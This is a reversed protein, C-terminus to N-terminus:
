GAPSVTTRLVLTTGDESLDLAVTVEGLGGTSTLHTGGCPVRVEGQGLACCWSRRDTLGSAPADVWVDADEAVWGTMRATIAEAVGPLEAALGDTGFGKKRLSKGLRYTDVSGCPLIASTTIALGDFDPNGLVDVPVDKRWRGALAENVALTVLECGTHGASLAARRAEDVLLVAEAHDQHPFPGDVLHVVLWHWGEAGRRVPIDSGLLVTDTGDEVAGIVCDVVDHRRQGVAITGLDAPHDPWTHDLPHFPTGATVVGTRGGAPFTALVPSAGRSTGDPFTVTTSREIDEIM